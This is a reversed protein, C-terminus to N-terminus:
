QNAKSQHNPATRHTAVKKPQTVILPPLDLRIQRGVNAALLAHIIAAHDTADQM